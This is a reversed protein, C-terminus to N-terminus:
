AVKRPRGGKNRPRLSEHMNVTPYISVRYVDGLTPQGGCVLCRLDQRLMIRAGIRPVNVTAIDRGCQICALEAVYQVVRGHGCECTAGLVDDPTAGVTVTGCDPCVDQFNGSLLRQPELSGRSHSAM